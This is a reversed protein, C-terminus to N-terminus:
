DDGKEESTLKQKWVLLIMPQIRWNNPKTPIGKHEKTVFQRSPFGLQIKLMDRRAVRTFNGNQMSELSHTSLATVAGDGKLFTNILDERIEKLQEDIIKISEEKNKIEEM